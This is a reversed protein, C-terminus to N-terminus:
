SESNSQRASSRAQNLLAIGQAVREDEVVAMGGGEEDVLQQRGTEDLTPEVWADLGQDGDPHVLHAPVIQVFGVVVPGRHGFQTVVAAPHAGQHTLEDLSHRDLQGDMPLARGPDDQHPYLVLADM